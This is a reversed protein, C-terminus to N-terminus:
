GIVKVSKVAVALTEPNNSVIFKNKMYFETQKEIMKAVYPQPNKSFEVKDCENIFNREFHYTDVFNEGNVLTIEFRTM